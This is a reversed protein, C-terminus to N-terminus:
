YRGMAKAYDYCQDRQCADYAHVCGSREICFTDNSRTCNSYEKIHVYEYYEPNTNSLNVVNVAVVVVVVVTLLIILLLNLKM